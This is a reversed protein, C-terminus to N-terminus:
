FITTTKKNTKKDNNNTKPYVATDSFPYPFVCNEFRAFLNFLQRVLLQCVGVGFACQNLVANSRGLADSVIKRRGEM